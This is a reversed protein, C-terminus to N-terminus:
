CLFYSAYHELRVARLSVLENIDKSERERERERESERDRERERERDTLYIVVVMKICIIIESFPQFGIWDSFLCSQRYSPKKVLKHTTM